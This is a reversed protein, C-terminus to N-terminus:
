FKARNKSFVTDSATKSITNDYPTFAEQLIQSQNKPLPKLDRAM